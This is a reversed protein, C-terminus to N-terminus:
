FKGICSLSIAWEGIVSQQCNRSVGMSPNVPRWLWESNAQAPYPYRGNLQQCNRSGSLRMATVRSRRQEPPRGVDNARPAGGAWWSLRGTVARGGPQWALLTLMFGSRALDTLLIDLSSASRRRSNSRRVSGASMDSGDTRSRTPFSIAFAICLGNLRHDPKFPSCIDRLLGGVPPPRV